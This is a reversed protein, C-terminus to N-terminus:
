GCWVAGPTCRLVMFISPASERRLNAPGFAIGVIDVQTNQEVEPIRVRFILTTDATRTFFSNGEALIENAFSRRVVVGVGRLQGGPESGHVRM